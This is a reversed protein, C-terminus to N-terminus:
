IKSKDLFEKKFLECCENCCFENTTGNGNIQQLWKINKFWKKFTTKITTVQLGGCWDCEVAKTYKM